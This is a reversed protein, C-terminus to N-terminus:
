GFPRFRRAKLRRGSGLQQEVVDALFEFLRGNEM